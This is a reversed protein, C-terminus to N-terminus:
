RSTTPSEDLRALFPVLLLLTARDAAPLLHNFLRRAEDRLVQDTDPPAATPLLDAVM